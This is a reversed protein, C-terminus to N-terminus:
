TLQPEKVDLELDTLHAVQNVHNRLGVVCYRQVCAMYHICVAGPLELRDGMWNHFARYETYLM